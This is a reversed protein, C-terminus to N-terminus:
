RFPPHLLFIFSRLAMVVTSSLILNLQMQSMGDVDWKASEEDPYMVTGAYSALEPQLKLPKMEEELESM